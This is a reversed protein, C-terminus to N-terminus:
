HLMDTYVSGTAQHCHKLVLRQKEIVSGTFCLYQQRQRRVAEAQHRARM